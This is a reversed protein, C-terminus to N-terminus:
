FHSASVELTKSLVFRNIKDDDIILSIPEIKM